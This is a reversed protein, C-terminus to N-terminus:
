STDHRWASSDLQSSRPRGRRGTGRSRSRPPTGRPWGRRTRTPRDRRRGRHDLPSIVLRHDPGPTLYAAYSRSTRAIRVVVADGNQDASRLLFPLRGALQGCAPTSTTAATRRVTVNVGKGKLRDRFARVGGRPAWPRGARLRNLAPHTSTAGLAADGAPGAPRRRRPPREGCRHAGVRVLPSPGQPWTAAAPTWWPTSPIDSTSRGRARRAVRRRGRAALGGPEGAPARRSGASPRARHRGDLPHPPAGVPRVDDTCGSWRPGRTTTTRSRSVWGMFVVNGIRATPVGGSSPRRARGARRDRRREPAAHVRGARDRLVARWRADPKPRCALRRGGPYHM